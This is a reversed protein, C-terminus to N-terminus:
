GAAGAEALRLAAEYDERTNLNLFLRGPDGFRRLEDDTVMRVSVEPWFSTMRWDQAEVRRRIAAASARSYVACLPEPGQATAPVVADGEGALGVLHRLLSGPVFPLDVALFLGAPHATAELAALVGALPAEAGAADTVVAVGRDLHRSRRGSLIAVDACVRALRRVAHDLLTPGGPWPLLAKDSGLRRGAGGTLVFGAVSM